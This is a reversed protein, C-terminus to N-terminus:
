QKPEEEIQEGSLPFMKKLLDTPNALRNLAQQAAAGMAIGHEVQKAYSDAYKEIAIVLRVTLKEFRDLRDKGIM